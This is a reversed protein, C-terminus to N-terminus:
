GRPRSAALWFELGQANLDLDARFGDLAEVETGAFGLAALSCCSAALRRPDGEGARPRGHAARAVAAHEDIARHLDDAWREIPGELLGYHTLYMRAPRCALM